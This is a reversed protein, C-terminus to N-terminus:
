IPELRLKFVLTGQLFANFTGVLDEMVTVSVGFYARPHDYELFSEISLWGNCPEYPLVSLSLYVIAMFSGLIRYALLRGSDLRYLATLGLIYTVTAGIVVLLGLLLSEYLVVDGFLYQGVVGNALINLVVSAVAAALSLQLPTSRDYNSLLTDESVLSLDHVKKM